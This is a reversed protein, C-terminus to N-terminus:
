VQTPVTDYFVLVGVWCVVCNLICVVVTTMYTFYAVLVANCKVTVQLHGISTSVHPALGTSITIINVYIM